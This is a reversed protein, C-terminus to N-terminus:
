HAAGLHKHENRKQTLLKSKTKKVTKGISKEVNQLKSWKIRDDFRYMKGTRLTEGRTESTKVRQRYWWAISVDEFRRKIVASCNAFGGPVLNQSLNDKRASGNHLERSAVIDPRKKGLNMNYDNRADIVCHDEDILKKLNQPEM